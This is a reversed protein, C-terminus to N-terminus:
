VAAFNLAVVRPRCGPALITLLTLEAADNTVGFSFTGSTTSTMYAVNPGTAPNIVKNLTGVAVGAAAIDGKDNTVAFTEIRAPTAVALATGKSDRLTCAVEIVNGVETGVVADIYGIEPGADHIGDTFYHAQDKQTYPTSPAPM